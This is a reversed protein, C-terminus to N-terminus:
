NLGKYSSNKVCRSTWNYANTGATNTSFTGTYWFELFGRSPTTAFRGNTLYMVQGEKSVTVLAEGRNNANFRFYSVTMGGPTTISGSSVGNLQSLAAANAVGLLNCYEQGTPLRYGLPCSPVNNYYDTFKGFLAFNTKINNVTIGAPLGVIQKARQIDSAFTGTTNFQMWTNGGMEVCSANLADMEEKAVAPITVSVLAATKKGQPTVGKIIVTASQSMGTTNPVLKLTLNNGSHLLKIARYESEVTSVDEITQITAFVDSGVCIKNAAITIDNSGYPSVTALGGLTNIGSISALTNIDAILYDQNPAICLVIREGYKDEFFKNRFVVYSYYAGSGPSQGNVKIRFRNFEGESEVVIDSTNGVVTAELEYQADLALIIDSNRNSPLFLTDYSASYSGEAGFESRFPDILVKADVDPTADTTGSNKWDSLTISATLTTGVKILRIIYVTNREIDAPLYTSLVVKIGNFRGYLKVKVDHNNYQANIYGLMQSSTVPAIFSKTYDFLEGVYGTYSASQETLYGGTALNTFQVSDIEVNSENIQLDVRAMAHTMEVNINTNDTTQVLNVQGAVPIKAFDITRDTLFMLEHEFDVSKYDSPGDLIYKLVGTQVEETNATFYLVADPSQFYNSPLSFTNDRVSLNRYVETLTGKNILYAHLDSLNSTEIGSVNSYNNLMLKVNRHEDKSIDERQVKSCGLLLLGILIITRNKNM